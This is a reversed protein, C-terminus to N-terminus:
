IDDIKVVEFDEMSAFKKARENNKKMDSDKDKARREHKALEKKDTTEQQARNVEEQLEDEDLEESSEFDQEDGFLIEGTDAQLASIDFNLDGKTKLQHCEDVNYKYLIFGEKPNLDNVQLLVVDNANIWVRRLFSGPIIAQRKVEDTCEVDLRNGGLKKKVQAYILGPSDDAWPTIDKKSTRGGKKGKKYGKGGKVNPM